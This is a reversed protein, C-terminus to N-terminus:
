QQLPSKSRVIDGFVEVLVSGPLPLLHLLLLNPLVDPFVPCDATIKFNIVGDGGAEAVQANVEDSFDVANMSVQTWGFNWGRASARLAGVRELAGAPVASGDRDLIWSSMSVPYRATDLRVHSRAGGCATALSALFLVVRLAVGPHRRWRM